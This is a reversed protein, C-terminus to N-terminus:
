SIQVKQGDLDTVVDIDCLSNNPKAGNSCVTSERSACSVREVEGPLSDKPGLVILKMPNMDSVHRPLHPCSRLRRPEEIRRTHYNVNKLTNVTEVSKNKRGYM